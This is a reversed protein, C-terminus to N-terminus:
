STARAGDPLFIKFERNPVASYTFSYAEAPVPDGVTRNGAADQNWYRLEVSQSDLDLGDALNDVLFADQLPAQNANIFVEWGIYGNDRTYEVGVNKDVSKNIVVNDAWVSVTPAGAIGSTLQANNRFTVDGNTELFVGPDTM